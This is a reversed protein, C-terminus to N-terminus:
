YRVERWINLNRVYVETGVADGDVVVTWPFRSGTHIRRPSTAVRERNIVLSCEGDAMIQLAVHTWGSTPLVDPLPVRTEVGPTALLSVESPDMKQFERSPYAFCLTEGGAPFVGTTPDFRELDLARVCLSINQHVDRNLEMKFEYEVTVGQDMPIPERFVVGDSYKEDGMLRLAKEGDITAIEPPHSGYPIWRNSAISDWSERFFTTPGGAGRDEVVVLITDTLSHGWRAVVRAVGAQNGTLAQEPNFNAVHPDLSEWWIGDPYTSGDSLYVSASLEEKDGWGMSISDNEARVEVPVKTVSDPLWFPMHEMLDMAQFRHTEGTTLDRLLFGPSGDVIDIQLVATGDPSCALGRGLAVPAIATVENEALNVEFLYTQEEPAATLVISEGCWDLSYIEGFGRSWIREGLLSYVALSDSGAVINFAVMDGDPSWRAIGLPGSGEHILHHGGGDSLETWFLSHSFPEKGVNESTFLVRTGEPSLDYLSQDGPEQIFPIKRGHEDIRVLDPGDELDDAGFWLFEGHPGLFAQRVGDPQPPDLFV